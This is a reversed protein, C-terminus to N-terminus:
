SEFEEILDLNIVTGDDLKCWDADDVAYLELIHGWVKTLKDSRERYTISCQSKSTSIEKLCTYLDCSIRMDDNMKEIKM